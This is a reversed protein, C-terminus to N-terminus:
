TEQIIEKTKKNHASDSKEINTREKVTKKEFPLCSTPGM